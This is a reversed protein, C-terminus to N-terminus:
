FGIQFCNREREIKKKNTKYAYRTHNKKNNNNFRIKLESFNSLNFIKTSFTQLYINAYKLILIQFIMELNTCTFRLM